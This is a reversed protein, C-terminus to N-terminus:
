RTHSVTTIYKSSSKKYRWRVHPKNEALQVKNESPLKEDCLLNAVMQSPKISDLKLYRDALEKIRKPSQLYALEAKLIYITDKEQDLQRELEAYHVRLDLVMQKIAFVGYISLALLIVGILSLSKNRM